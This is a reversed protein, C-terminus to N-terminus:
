YNVPRDEEVPRNAGQEPAGSEASAPPERGARSRSQKRSAERQNMASGQDLRREEAQSELGVIGDWGSKTLPRKM